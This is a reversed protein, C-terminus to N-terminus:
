VGFVVEFMSFLLRRNAVEIEAAHVIALIFNYRSNNNVACDVQGLIIQSSLCAFSGFWYVRMKSRFFPHYGTRKYLVVVHSTNASKISHCIFNLLEFYLLFFQIGTCFRFKILLHVSLM